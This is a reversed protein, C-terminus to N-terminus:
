TRTITQLVGASYALALNAVTTGGSGGLKYIVGTLDSGTYSLAIYDYKEPVLSSSLLEGASNVRLPTAVSGTWGYPMVKKLALLEDHEDRDIQTSGYQGRLESM